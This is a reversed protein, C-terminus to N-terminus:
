EYKVEAYLKAFYKQQINNKEKHNLKVKIIPPGNNLNHYNSYNIGFISARNNKHLHLTYQLLDLNDGADYFTIMYKIDIVVNNNDPINTQLLKDIDAQVVSNHKVLEKYTKYQLYLYHNTYLPYTITLIIFLILIFHLFREIIHSRKKDKLQKTNLIHNAKNCAIINYAPLINCFEETKIVLWDLGLIISAEHPSIIILNKQQFTHLILKPKIEESVIIYVNLIHDHSINLNNITNDFAQKIYGTYITLNERKSLPIFETKYFINNQYVTAQLQENSNHVFLVDWKNKSINNPLGISLINIVQYYELPSLAFGAFQPTINNVFNLWNEGLESAMILCQQYNNNKSLIKLDALNYKEKMSTTLLSNLLSSKNSTFPINLFHHQYVQHSHNIIIYVVCDENKKIYQQLKQIELTDDVKINWRSLLKRYKSHTIIAINDTIIIVVKSKYFYM